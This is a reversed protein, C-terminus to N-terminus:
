DDLRARPEAALELPLPDALLHARGDQVERERAEAGAPRQAAREVVVRRRDTNRPRQAVGLVAFLDREPAALRGALDVELESSGIPFPLASVVDDDFM